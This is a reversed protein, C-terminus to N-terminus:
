VTKMHETDWDWLTWWAITGTYILCILCHRLHLPVLISWVTDRDFHEDHLPVLISWVTDWVWLTWWAITGTYILCHRLRLTNMMCHYWHLDFLHRSCYVYRFCIIGVNTTPATWSYKRPLDLPQSECTSFILMQAYCLNNDAQTKITVYCTTSEAVVMLIKNAHPIATMFSCISEM